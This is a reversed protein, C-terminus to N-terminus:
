ITPVPLRSCFQVIRLRRKQRPSEIADRHQGSRRGAFFLPPASQPGAAAIQNPNTPTLGLRRRVSAAGRLRQRLGQASEVGQRHCSSGCPERVDARRGPCGNGPDNCLAHTNITKPVTKPAAQIPSATFMASAIGIALLPLGLKKMSLPTKESRDNPELCLALTLENLRALAPATSAKGPKTACRGYSTADAMESRRGFESSKKIPIRVLTKDWHLDAYATGAADPDEFSIEFNEKREAANNVPVEVRLVDKQADPAMAGWRNWDSNFAITWTKPGPFAYIAYKGPPLEKESVLLPVNTEFVTAENAGMRWYQGYPQLAGASKEGFIVRGKAAPRCYDIKLM